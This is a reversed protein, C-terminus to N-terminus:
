TVAGPGVVYEDGGPGAIKAAPERAAVIDLDFPVLDAAAAPIIDQQCRIRVAAPAPILVGGLFGRGSGALDLLVLLAVEFFIRVVIDPNHRPQFAVSM